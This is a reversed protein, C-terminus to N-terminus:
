PKEPLPTADWIRVMGDPGGSALRYGNPSFAVSNAGHAHGQFTLLEQGTQADWVKLGGRRVGSALRKGDPSFAVTPAGAKLTLIEAPLLRYLYHWEFGRLDSEGPKPRPQELLL